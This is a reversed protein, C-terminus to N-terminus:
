YSQTRILHRKYGVRHFFLIVSRALPHEENGPAAPILHTKIDIMVEEMELEEEKELGDAKYLAEASVKAAPLLIPHVRAEILM